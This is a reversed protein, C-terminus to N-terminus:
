TASCGINVTVSLTGVDVVTVSSTSIGVVTVVISVETVSPVFGFLVVPTTMVATDIAALKLTKSIIM